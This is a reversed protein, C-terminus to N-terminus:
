FLSRAKEWYSADNTKEKRWYWWEAGWLYFTDLGTKQAYEINKDFQALNFAREQEEFSVDYLLKGAGWPEAQLEGVMVEKGYLFKIMSAKRAYFVPALPYELYRGFEHFWVKRYMTTSVVDGIQAARMWLSLEGSDSIVIKRSSDLERALKVEKKLFERDKWPCDGFPFMPENEVQWAFVASSDKYRNVVQRIIELIEEQQEDKSLGKAWEPVHCEPWRLTKMGFVLLMQADRQEAQEVQWDIDDFYFEDREPEILDWDVSTKVRKVRLDDLMALYVKQWDLRLAAAHKQSFGVGWLPHLVPEATGVFLFGVAAIVILMGIGGVILAIRKKM